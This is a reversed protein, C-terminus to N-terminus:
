DDNEIDDESSSTKGDGTVRSVIAKAYKRIKKHYKNDQFHRVTASVNSSALPDKLFSISAFHYILGLTLSIVVDRQEQKIAESSMGDLAQELYSILNVSFFIERIEPIAVASSCYLSSVLTSIAKLGELSVNERLFFLYLDLYNSLRQQDGLVLLNTTNNLACLNVVLRCIAEVVSSKNKSPPQQLLFPVFLPPTSMIQIITELGGSERYNTQNEPSNELCHCIFRATKELIISSLSPSTPHTFHYSLIESLIQFNQSTGGRLHNQPNKAVLRVAFTVIKACLNPNKFVRALSDFLFTFIQYKGLSECAGNAYSLRTLVEYGQELYLDNAIFTLLLQILFIPKRVLLVIIPSHSKSEKALKLLENMRKLALLGLEEHHSEVGTKVAELIIESDTSTPIIHLLSIIRINQIENSKQRLQYRRFIRQIVRVADDHANKKKLNRESNLITAMDESSITMPQSPIALPASLPLDNDESVNSETPQILKRHSSFKNANSKRQQSPHPPTPSKLLSVQPPPSSAREESSDSSTNTAPDEERNTRTEDTESLPPPSSTASELVRQQSPNRKKKNSNSGISIISASSNSRSFGKQLQPDELSLLKQYIKKLYPVMGEEEGEGEGKQEGEKEREREGEGEEMHRLVEEFIPCFELLQLRFAKYHHVSSIFKCTSVVLDSSNSLLRVSDKMVDQFVQFFPPHMVSAVHVVTENSNLVGELMYTLKTFTSPIIAPDLSVVSTHICKLILQFNDITGFKSQNVRHRNTCLILVGRAFLELLEFNKMNTEFGFLLAECVGSEGVRTLIVPSEKGIIYLYRILKKIIEFHTVYKKLNEAIALCSLKNGFRYRNKSSRDLLLCCLDLIQLTYLHCDNPPLADSSYEKRLLSSLQPCLGSSGLDEYINSSRSTTLISKIAQVTLSHLAPHEPFTDFILSFITFDPFLTDVLDPFSYSSNDEPNPQSGNAKVKTVHRMLKLIRKFTLVALTLHRKKMFLNISKRLLALDNTKEVVSLLSIIEFRESHSALDLNKQKRMERILNIFGRKLILWREDVAIKQSTEKDEQPTMKPVSPSSPPSAQTFPLVSSSLTHSINTFIDDSSTTSADAPPTSPLDKAYSRHTHTAMLKVPEPKQTETVSKGSKVEIEKLPQHSPPQVPSPPTVKLPQPSAANKPLPTLHVSEKQNLSKPVSKKTPSSTVKSTHDLTVTSGREHSSVHVREQEKLSKSERNTQEILQKQVDKLQSLMDKMQSKLTVIEHEYGSIKANQQETQQQQAPPAVAATAATPTSFYIEQEHYKQYEINDKLQALESNFNTLANGVEGRVALLESMLEARTFNRNADGKSGTPLESSSNTLSSNAASFTKSKLKKKKKKFNKKRKPKLSKSTESISSISNEDNDEEEEGEHSSGEAVLPSSLDDFLDTSSSLNTQKFRPPSENNSIHTPHDRKKQLQSFKLIEEYCKEQFNLHDYRAGVIMEDVFELNTCGLIWNAV